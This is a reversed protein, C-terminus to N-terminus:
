HVGDCEQNSHSLVSGFRLQYEASTIFSCVMGRYNNPDRNNIVDLWFAYGDPDIDRRLYGFYQMLVFSPNYERDKFVQIEIVDGVVQARSKGLNMADIQQQREAGFPTLGATDFLKNVFQANTQSDPYAQKFEPRTVFDNLLAVKNTDLSTGGVVKSRDAVFETYGPRRGLAGKYLRYVFSGTQQFEAEVFFAGSVGIRENKLCATDSGCATIQGTWYNLGPVDPQRDLFDLYHQNVFFQASDLPNTLPATADNDAVTLVASSPSGLFAGGTPNSLSLM